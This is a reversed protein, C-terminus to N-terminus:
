TYFYAENLGEFYKCNPFLSKFTDASYSKFFISFFNNNRTDIMIPSYGGIYLAYGGNEDDVLWFKIQTNKDFLDYFRHNMVIDNFGDNTNQYKNDIFYIPCDTIEETKYLNMMYISSIDSMKIQKDHGFDVIYEPHRVVSYKGYEYLFTFSYVMLFLIILFKWKRKKM